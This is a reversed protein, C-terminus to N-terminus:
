RAYGGEKAVQKVKPIRGCGVMVQKGDSREQELLVTDAAIVEDVPVSRSGSRIALVPKGFSLEASARALGFM